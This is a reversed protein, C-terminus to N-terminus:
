YQDGEVFDVSVQNRRFIATHVEDEVIPLRKKIYDLDTYKSYKQRVLTEEPAAGRRRYSDLFELLPRLAGSM